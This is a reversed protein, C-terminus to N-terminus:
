FLAIKRREAEIREQARRDDAKIEDLLDQVRRQTAARFIADENAAKSHNLLTRSLNRQEIHEPKGDPWLSQSRASANTNPYAPYTVVSVDFLDADLIERLTAPNGTPNNAFNEDVCCFGFSCESVDGRKVAEYVDMRSNPVDCEFYLGTQDESLRLTKSKTRGLIIDENHNFLCRVDANNGLTRSFAGPRIVEIFGGLDESYSNFKAAYGTIVPTSKTGSARMERGLFRVEKPNGNSM